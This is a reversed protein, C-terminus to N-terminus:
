SSAHSMMMRKLPELAQTTQLGLSRLLVVPGLDTNYIRHLGEIASMTVINHRQRNTEYNKLYNIDNLTSGAYVADGLVENLCTVDGFGLNVGLGALPHVRHAADGVLAVGKRIYQSSHGFGLPFCARSNPEIGEIKPPSQKQEVSSCNLMRLATDLLNTAQQIIISSPHKCHLAINLENVFEEESLSLLRKAEAPTTSWILSSLEDTLPLMAVPGNPLFRQWAINNTTKESLKLTSVIGMQHYSWSIYDSQMAKRVTSNVGDCGLKSIHPNGEIAESEVM